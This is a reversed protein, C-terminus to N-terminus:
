AGIRQNYDAIAKNSQDVAQQLAPAAPKGGTIVTDLADIVAGRVGEGKAGYPGIVPGATATSEAGHLLQDYAIKYYPAQKWRSTLPEMTTASERIPLYGTGASWASQSTATTLFKAFRWAAEEKAPTSDKGKTIYLAAGGVLVGGNGPPGPMPGVGLKVHAFQGQGLVLSITGLGASSEITMAARSNAVALYDDITSESSGVGVLLKDKVMDHLWTFIDLGQKGGFVVQTARKDRGNGNNVFPVGAKALWQELYWADTKLALGYPAAKSDVIKQSAARLEDLTTPPKNPDLGAKTFLAKDYYLVPNSVNFPMPWLAGGVTYYSLVRKVYDSTDFHEANICSQAPLVSQTDIMYQLDTEAIQALDPLGGSRLAANYKTKTDPYSTQNVLKVTVKDQSANFKDTLTKLTDGNARSMSHWMTITTRGTAKDLAGIPCAPLTSKKTAPSASDGGGSGGGGGGCAAVVLALVAVSAGLRFPLRQMLIM